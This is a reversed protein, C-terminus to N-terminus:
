ANAENHTNLLRISKEKEVLFFFVLIASLNAMKEAEAEERYAQYAVNNSVCCNTHAVEFSCGKRFQENAVMENWIEKAKGM